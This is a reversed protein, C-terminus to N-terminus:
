RVRRIRVASGGVGGGPPPMILRDTSDPCGWSACLAGEIEAFGLVAENGAAELLSPSGLQDDDGFGFGREFGLARL